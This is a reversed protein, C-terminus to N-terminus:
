QYYNVLFKRKKLFILKATLWMFWAALTDLGRDCSSFIVKQVWYFRKTKVNERYLITLQDTHAITHCFNRFFDRERYTSIQKKFYALNKGICDASFMFGTFICSFSDYLMQPEVLIASGSVFCELINMSKRTLLDEYGHSLSSTRQLYHYTGGHVTCVTTIYPLLRMHFLLDEGHQVEFTVQARLLLERRYLKNWVVPSSAFYRLFLLEQGLTSVDLVSEQLGLVDEVQYNRYEKIYDGIAIDGHAAALATYLKELHTFDVYDDVDV